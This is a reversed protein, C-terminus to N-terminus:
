NLMLVCKLEIQVISIARHPAELSLAWASAIVGPCLSSRSGGFELIVSVEGDSQKNGYGPCENPPTKGKASTCDTYEVTM